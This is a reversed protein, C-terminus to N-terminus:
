RRLKAGPSQRINGFNPSGSNRVVSGYLGERSNRGTSGQQNKMVADAWLIIRGEYESHDYAIIALEVEIPVGLLLNAPKPNGIGLLLGEVPRGPELIGGELLVHNIVQERPLEWAGTGPFRYNYPGGRLEKPDPLWEFDPNPWHPRPAVDRVRIPRSTQNIILLGIQWGCRGDALDFVLSDTVRGVQEIEVDIEAVSRDLPIGMEAMERLFLSHNDRKAKSMAVETGNSQKNQTMFKVYM